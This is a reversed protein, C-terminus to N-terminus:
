ILWLEFRRLGDGSGGIPHKRRVTVPESSRGLRAARFPLEVPQVAPSGLSPSAPAGPHSQHGMPQCNTSVVLPILSSVCQHGM